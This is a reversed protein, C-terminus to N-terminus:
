MSNGTEYDLIVQREQDAKDFPKSPHITYLQSECLWSQLNKSFILFWMRYVLSISAPSWIFNSVHISDGPPYLPRCNVSDMPCAAQVKLFIPAFLGLRFNNSRLCHHWVREKVQWNWEEYTQQDFDYFGLLVGDAIPHHEDNEWHRNRHEAFATSIVIAIVKGQHYWM